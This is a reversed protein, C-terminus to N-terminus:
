YSAVITCPKGTKAEARECFEVFHLFSKIAPHNRSLHKTKYLTAERVLAVKEVEPLRERLVAAAIPAECQDAAFAEPVLVRTAYPKGHYAERLYGVHGKTTDFGCMQANTQEETMGDFRAYIDIGM